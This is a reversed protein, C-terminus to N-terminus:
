EENKSLVLRELDGYTSVEALEEDSIDIGYSGELQISMEIATLSDVGLDETLLAYETLKDRDLQLYEAVDNKVQDATIAAM